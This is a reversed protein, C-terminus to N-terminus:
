DTLAAAAAVRDVNSGVGGSSGTLAVAAAATDMVM